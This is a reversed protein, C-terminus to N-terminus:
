RASSNPLETASAAASAHPDSHNAAVPIGTATLPRMRAAASWTRVGLGSAPAMRAAVSRRSGVRLYAGSCRGSCRRLPRRRRRRRRRRSTTAPATANSEETAIMTAREVPPPPRGCVTVVGVLGAGTGAGPSIPMKSGMPAGDVIGIVEVVSAWLPNTGIVVGLVIAGLLVTGLGVVTIVLRGGTRIVVDVAVDVEVAVDEDVDVEDGVVVVENVGDDVLGGDVGDVPL